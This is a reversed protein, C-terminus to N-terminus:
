RIKSIIRDLEPPIIEMMIRTKEVSWKKLEETMEGENKEIYICSWSKGWDKQFVVKEGLAKELKTKIKQFSNIIKANIKKDSKELHLAVQFRNRPRGRFLWEFHIGSVGTPIQYFSKPTPVSYKNPLFENLRKVLDNYFKLYEEQTLTMTHEINEKRESQITFDKAEPLPILVNSEFTITDKDVEYPTLKICTIDIGFKRLWLVSATVEPRYERSVIIIRPKDSLEEFEDNDIFEIIQKKAEEENIKKGKGGLYDKYLKIVENLTLTSCYAAYKITQLEVSKGSNDRKLEVIVLNGEKDIALLDLRENTKDFKDYETTIILLEEGLIEPSDEVWKEIDQRELINHSRIDTNKYLSIKKSDKKYTFLM